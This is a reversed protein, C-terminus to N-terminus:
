MGGGSSEAELSHKIYNIIHWRDEPDVSDGYGPMIALGGKTITYFLDGDPKSQVYDGQLPTPAVYKKGVLGEGMGTKGHCTLCFIEYRFKGREISESTPEYPNTLGAADVRDRFFYKKGETTVSGEPKLPAPEEQAKHSPQTFMDWSWPWAGAVAPLLVM